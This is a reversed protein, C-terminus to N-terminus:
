AMESSLSKIGMQVHNTNGVMEFVWWQLGGETDDKGSQFGWRM